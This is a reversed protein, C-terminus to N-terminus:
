SIQRKRKEGAPNYMHEQRTKKEVKNEKKNKAFHHMNIIIGGVHNGQKIRYTFHEPLLWIQVLYMSSLDIRVRAM